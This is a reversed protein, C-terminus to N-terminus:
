EIILEDQEVVKNKEALMKGKLVEIEEELGNLRTEDFVKDMTRELESTTVRIRRIKDKLQDPEDKILDLQWQIDNIMSMGQNTNVQRGSGHINEFIGIEPCTYSLVPYPIMGKTKKSYKEATHIKVNVKVDNILFSGMVVGTPSNIYLEMLSDVYTDCATGFQEAYKEKGAQMFVFRNPFFEKVVSSYKQQEALEIELKGIDELAYNLQRQTQVQKAFHNDRKMRESKLRNDLMLKTMAHPSDSLHAMMEDFTMQAEDAADEMVRDVGEGKMIQNIFRQKTALRQFAASDLTKEVGYAFIHIEKNLNGQREIRGNRQEFDMPRNPADVHHLGILRKQANVGVGMRETSGLLFKIRAANADAFLQEAKEAKDYKPETLIAIEHPKVGQAILKQKIDNFLNFRPMGYAPNPIQCDEDIFPEKPEPSQYLDSFIMQVLGTEHYIRLAHRIVQNVKSNPVDKNAPSLLRLDISAQKARGFVVLPIYSYKRRDMGELEDYWELLERFEKIQLRLEESQKIIEQKIQGGHLKPIMDNLHFEAIDEKLVVDTCERFAAIFEPLNQFKAFRNQIKFTGGGTQELSPIVQGFTKAFQDFHQIGIKKLIDPRVYRIMTWAEAMTNSIPTGTYVLTNRGENHQQVWRMKLLTSQSRNSKQVDIGKVNALATYIGGLRKYRHFEDILLADVGLDEFNLLPKSGDVQSALERANRRQEENIEIDGLDKRLGRLQRNVSAYEQPMVRKDINYLVEQVENIQDALIKKQRDLDDPIMDFQSAPLIIADWDQDRIKYYLEARYATTLELGTPALINADPYLDMFSAIFQGRTKNQVVIMPKTAKGLRRLEMATTIIVLTKGSGVVHAFLTSHNLGRIVAAKQHKLLYIHTSAGPYHVLDPIVFNRTVRSNFIENYEKETSEEIDRNARIFAQFEDQMQEQMGQAAATKDLNKTTKGSKTESITIQQNNLTANLIELGNKGGAAYTMKIQPGGSFYATASYKGTLELYQIKVKTKFMDTAFKEFVEKPIWAAGLSYQIFASPIQEPQVEKLKEVNRLFMPNNIAAEEAKILKVRVNGSLYEDPAELVNNEPNYFVLEEALLQNEVEESDLGLAESIYDVDITNKYNLCDRVVSKLTIPEPSVDHNGVGPIPEIVPEPVVEELKELTPIYRPNKKTLKEKAKLLLDYFLEESHKKIYGQVKSKAAMVAVEMTTGTSLSSGSMGESVVWGNGKLALHVYFDGKLGLDAEYTKEIPIWNGTEKDVVYAQDSTRKQNLYISKSTKQLLKDYLSM